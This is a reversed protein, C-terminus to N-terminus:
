ARRSASQPPDPEDNPAPDADLDARSLLRWLTLALLGHSLALALYDVM